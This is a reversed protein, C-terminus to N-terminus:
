STLRGTEGSETINADITGGHVCGHVLERERHRLVRQVKVLQLDAAERIQKTAQSGSHQHGEVRAHLGEVCDNLLTLVFEGAGELLELFVCQLDRRSAGGSELHQHM